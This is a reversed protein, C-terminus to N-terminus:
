KGWPNKPISPFANPEPYPNPKFAGGVWPTQPTPSASAPATTSASAPATISASAPAAFTLVTGAVAGLVAGLGIVVAAATAALRTKIM